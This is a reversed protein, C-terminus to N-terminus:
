IKDVSEGTQTKKLEDITDSLKDVCSRMDEITQLIDTNTSSIKGYVENTAKSYMDIFDHSSNALKTAYNELAGGLQEDIGKALGNMLNKASTNFDAISQNLVQAGKGISDIDFNTIADAIKISINALKEELEIITKISDNIGVMGDTTESLKEINENFLDGLESQKDVIQETNQIVEEANTLADYFRGFLSDFNLVSDNIDTSLKNVDHKIYSFSEATDDLINVVSELSSAADPITEIVEVFREKIQVVNDMADKIMGITEQLDSISDNFTLRSDLILAILVEFGQMMVKVNEVASDIQDLLLPVRDCLSGVADNVRGISDPLVVLKSYTDNLVYSVKSIQDVLCNVKEQTGDLIQKSIEENLARINSVAEESIKTSMQEISHKMEMVHRSVNSTITNAMEAVSAEMRNISSVLKNSIDYGMKKIPESLTNCLVINEPIYYRDDLELCMEEIIRCYTNEEYRQWIQYVSSLFMGCISTLFAINIGGNILDKISQATSETTAFDFKSMGFYLGVFTGLVGLGVLISPAIHLQKINIKKLNYILNENIFDVASSTSKGGLGSMTLEYKRWLISKKSKIVYIESYVSMSIIIGKVIYWIYAIGIVFLSCITVSDLQNSNTTFCLLVVILVLPISLVGVGRVLIKTKENM